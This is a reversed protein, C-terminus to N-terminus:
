GDFHVGPGLVLIFTGAVVAALATWGLTVARRSVPVSVATRAQADGSPVLLMGWTLGFSAGLGSIVILMPSIPNLAAALTLVIGDAIYASWVFRKLLAASMAGSRVIRDMSRRLWHVSLAYAAGGLLALVSRWLWAPAYGGIVLSWDGNGMVASAILYGCNLLSMAAFAWLFLAWSSFTTTRALLGLAAAGAIVNALTGAASVFRNPTATQIAVTSLSLVRVGVMRAAVMHGLVEHTLDAAV